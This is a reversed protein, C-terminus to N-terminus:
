FYCLIKQNLVFIDCMYFINDILQIGCKTLYLQLGSAASLLLVFATKSYRCKQAM